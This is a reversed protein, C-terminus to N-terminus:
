QSANINNIGHRASAFGVTRVSGFSNDGTVDAHM